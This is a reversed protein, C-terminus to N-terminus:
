GAEAISSPASLLRSTNPLTLPRGDHGHAQGIQNSWSGLPMPNGKMWSRTCLIGMICIGFVHNEDVHGDQPSSRDGLLM